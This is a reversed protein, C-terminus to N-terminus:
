MSFYIDTWSVPLRKKKKEDDNVQFPFAATFSLFTLYMKSTCTLFINLLSYILRMQMVVATQNRTESDSHSARKGYFTFVM